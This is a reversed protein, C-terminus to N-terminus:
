IDSLHCAVYHNPQIAKVDPVVEKCISMAMPCRTHFVCGSPPSSANPLEGQLVIREKKSGKTTPVASLLAQTYPHAPNGYLQETAALEMMKGLYMVAVRDSIHRVVSLDHSIFIYTLGLDTQLRQLLNIIQAQISVDLASVAEDAIVVEPQLALARAIGIRQRQGGSFEHPYRNMHIADLGVTELLEKVRNLRDISKLFIRHAHLPEIITKKLTKRPNLSAYPDQFIMQIEKRISKRLTDESASTIDQGKYFIKGETPKHLRILTRGLTSKGCGSEGVIGVTEGKNIILSIDDVAKIYQKTKLLVGQKMPFYKKLNVVQLLSKLHDQKEMNTKTQSYVM